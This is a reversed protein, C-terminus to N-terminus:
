KKMEIVSNLDIDLRLIGVGFAAGNVEVNTLKLNSSLTLETATLKQVEGNLTTLNGLLDSGLNINTFEINSTGNTFRWNSKTTAQTNATTTIEVEKDNLFNLTRIIKVTDLVSPPLVGNPFFLQLQLPLGRTVRGTSTTKTETWKGRILDASSPAPDSSSCAQTAIFIAFIFLVSIYKKM